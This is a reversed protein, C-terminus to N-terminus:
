EFGRTLGNPADAVFHAVLHWRGGQKIWVVVFVRPGNFVKGEYHKNSISRGSVVVTNGGFAVLRIHDHKFKDMHDHGSVISAAVQAKTLKEGIGFRETVWVVQDPMLSVVAAADNSKAAQAFEDTVKSRYFDDLVKRAEKTEVEGVTDESGPIPYKVVEVKKETTGKVFGVLAVALLPLLAIRRTV